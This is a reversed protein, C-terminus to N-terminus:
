YRLRERQFQQAQRELDRTTSEVMVQERPQALLGVGRTTLVDAALRGLESLAYPARGAYRSAAYPAVLPIAAVPGAAASGGLYGAGATAAGGSLIGRLSLPSLSKLADEAGLRGGRTIASVLHEFEAPALKSQLEATVGPDRLLRQLAVLNLRMGGPHGAYVRPDTLLEDLITRGKAYTGQAMRWGAGAGPNAATLASEIEASIQHYLKRQDIGNITRDLPNRSFARAGVDSLERNAETLTMSRGGLSPITISPVSREIDRVMVAKADGLKKLGEGSALRHLGEVTRADKLPNSLDEIAQGVRDADKAAIRGPAGWVSRLAKGALSTLGETGLVTLAGLGGGRLAGRGADKSELAGGAAGGLGAGASRTLAPLMQRWMGAGPEVVPAFRSAVPLALGIGAQTLTQPVAMKALFREGSTDAPQSAPIVGLAQMVRHQALYPAALATEVVGTAPRAVYDEFLRGVTSRTDKEPIAGEPIAGPPVAREPIAGEPVAGPPMKAM